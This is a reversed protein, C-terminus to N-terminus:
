MEYRNGHMRRSKKTPQMFLIGENSFIFSTQRLWKPVNCVTWYYNVTCLEPNPRRSFIRICSGLAKTIVLVVKWWLEKNTNCWIACNCKNTLAKKATCTVFIYSVVWPYYGMTPYPLVYKILLLSGCIYYWYCLIQITLPFTPFKNSLLLDLAKQM